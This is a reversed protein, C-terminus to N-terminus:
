QTGRETREEARESGEVFRVQLEGAEVRAGATRLRAIGQPLTMLRRYSGVTVVLDDGNRALHVQDSSAGPLALHAV